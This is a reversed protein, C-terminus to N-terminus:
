PLVGFHAALAERRFAFIGQLRRAVLLQHLRM